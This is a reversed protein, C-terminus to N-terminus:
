NGCETKDGNKHLVTIVADKSQQPVKGERWVLTTLRHLELLNTRNQQLGLKLLEAPVGSGPRAERSVM